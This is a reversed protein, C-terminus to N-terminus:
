PTEEKRRLKMIEARLYELFEDQTKGALKAPLEPTPKSPLSITITHETPDGKM